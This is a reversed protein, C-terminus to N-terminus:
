GSGDVAHREAFTDIIRHHAGVRLRMCYVPPELIAPASDPIHLQCLRGNPGRGGRAIALDQRLAFNQQGEDLATLRVESLRRPGRELPDLDGAIGTVGVRVQKRVTHSDVREHLEPFPTGGEVGDVFSQAHRVLAAMNW